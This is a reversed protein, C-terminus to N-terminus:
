KQTVFEHTLPNSTKMDINRPLRTRPTPKQLMKCNNLVEVTAKERQNDNRCTIFTNSSTLSSILAIQYGQTGRFPNAADSNVYFCIKGM